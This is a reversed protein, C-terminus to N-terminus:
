RWPNGRYMRINKTRSSNFEKRAQAALALYDSVSKANFPSHPIEDLGTSKEGINAKHIADLLRYYASQGTVHSAPAGISGRRYQRRYTFPKRVHFVVFELTVNHKLSWAELNMLQLLEVKSNKLFVIPTGDIESLAKRLRKEFRAIRKAFIGTTM